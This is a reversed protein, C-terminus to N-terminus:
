SLSWFAEFHTVYAVDIYISNGIETSFIKYSNVPEQPFRSGPQFLRFPSQPLRASVLQFLNDDAHPLLDIPPLNSYLPSSLCDSTSARYNRM